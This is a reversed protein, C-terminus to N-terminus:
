LLSPPDTEVHWEGLPKDRLVATPDPGRLIIQWRFSGRQRHFFCPVPGIIETATFNGEKIWTQIREAMQRANFEVQADDQGRLELRVLRSFPPYGIKRRAELEEFFFGNFDHLSAARVAYHDPQFTQLIVKGGLPSRGARGAVQTLLQFTREGARFDPFSLGVDALIVGVLTVLPLDLGKALMQTGVLIDARHNIFHSLLIEHTDKQTTTEADWRLVTADPFLSKVETEVKETGTGFRAIRSSACQPCTKPMNRHYGCTHCTLAEQSRHYTLPTECRPCRLTYGCDRCFVYTATGRRNLFLIAQQNAQLVDRLATQLARSFISTNGSKLEDRMDVLKVPPLPLDTTVGSGSLAPLTLGLQDMQTRVTDRHALIRVPLQLVHWKKRQFQYLLSIDPTASGLLAVGGTQRAYAIATTVAHYYPQIESQYYSEDHCEDVVILGLNPLPTFLASRPGVIIPLKGARARRWTDFREGPSLKSHVLGVQGPFRKVFRRVTQPTLSIEPVLIIAQRGLALTKEVARLYIETKGSGTVGHLLFPSITKGQAAHRIGEELDEWVKAQAPTLPPPEGPIYEIRELPDRWVESESLIVLGLKALYTLDQLTGGSAAYAWSVNLPMPEEQLFNLIKKRREGAAGRGLDNLSAEIEQSSGALQVTRVVKPRVSPPPLVPQASIRGRQILGRAASKWNQHPFATNIQRGRLAGRRHLEDIIETQLKSLAKPSSEEKENLQYLVDAQQSLGSPLMSHLCASLSSLTRESLWEALRIQAANVVPESDLVAKVERTEPVAPIAVERLVIGQVHQAGFPVVVLCGPKIQGYIEPPIHYDFVGSVQPVNVAVQVYKREM